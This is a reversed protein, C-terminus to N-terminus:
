YTVGVLFNLVQQASTIVRLATKNVSNARVCCTGGLLAGLSWSRYHRRTGHGCRLITDTRIGLLFYTVKRSPNSRLYVDGFYIIQNVM